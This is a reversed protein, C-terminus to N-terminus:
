ADGAKELSKAVNVAVLAGKRVRKKRQHDAEGILIKRLQDYRTCYSMRSISPLSPVKAGIDEGNGGRAILKEHLARLGTNM